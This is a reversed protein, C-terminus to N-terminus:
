VYCFKFLRFKSSNRLVFMFILFMRKSLSLIFTNKLKGYRLSISVPSFEISSLLFNNLIIKRVIIEVNRNLVLSNTIFDNIAYEFFFLDKLLFKMFFLMREFCELLM